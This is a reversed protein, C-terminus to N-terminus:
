VRFMLGYVRVGHFRFRSDYVSFRLGEITLELGEVM